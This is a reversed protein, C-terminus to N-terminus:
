KNQISELEKIRAVLADQNKGLDDVMKELTAIKNQKEGMMADVEDATYVTFMHEPLFKELPGSEPKNFWQQPDYRFSESPPLTVSVSGYPPTAVVTPGGDSHIRILKMVLEASSASSLPSAVTFISTSLCILLMRSRKLMAGGISCRSILAAARVICSLRPKFLHFHAIYLTRARAAALL